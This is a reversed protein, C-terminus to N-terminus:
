LSVGMYVIAVKDEGEFEQVVVSIVRKEESVVNISTQRSDELDYSEIEPDYQALQERYFSLVEEYSDSTFVRKVQAVGGMAYSADEVAGPYDPISVEELVDKSCNAIMFLTCLIVAFNMISLKM